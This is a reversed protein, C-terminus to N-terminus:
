YNKYFIRIIKYPFEIIFLQINNFNEILKCISRKRFYFPLYFIM